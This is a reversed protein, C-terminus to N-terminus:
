CYLDLSTLPNLIYKHTSDILCPSPISHTSPFCFPLLWSHSRSWFFPQLVQVKPQLLCSWILDSWDSLRTRSKAVGHISARWAERDIVLEQLEHLWIPLACTQVGPTPSPHPPRAHQLEHPWLSDSMVSRSFQVSSFCKQDTTSSFIRSLGKSLLSILGTLGLPFLGQTNMPLVSVSALTGISQGGSAFSQSM